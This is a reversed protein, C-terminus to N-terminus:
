CFTTTLLNVFGVHRQGFFFHDESTYRQRCLSCTLLVLVFLYLFFFSSRQKLLEYIHMDVRQEESTDRGCSYKTNGASIIKFNLYVQGDDVTCADSRGSLLNTNYM